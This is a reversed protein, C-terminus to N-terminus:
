VGTLFPNAVVTVVLQPRLPDNSPRLRADAFLGTNYIASLAKQLDSRSMFAGPLAMMVDYVPKKSARRIPIAM